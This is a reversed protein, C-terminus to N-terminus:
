AGAPPARTTCAAACREGTANPCTVVLTDESRGFDGAPPWLWTTGAELCAEEHPGGGPTWCACQLLQAEQGSCGAVVKGAGPTSNWPLAAHDEAVAMDGVAFGLERCVVGAVVGDRRNGRVAVQVWAGGPDRAAVHGQHPGAGGLLQVEGLGTRGSPPPPAPPPPLSHSASLLTHRAPCCQQEGLILAAAVAM